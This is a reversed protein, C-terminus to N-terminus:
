FNSLLLMIHVDKTGNNRTEGTIKQKCKFSVRDPDNPVDIIVGNDNILLMLMVVDIEKAHDIEKYNIDTICDTFLSCNKFIVNKNRNNSAVARGTNTVAITEKVLIYVDSYDSSVNSNVM